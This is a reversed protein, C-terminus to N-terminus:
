PQAEPDAARAENQEREDDHGVVQPPPFTM